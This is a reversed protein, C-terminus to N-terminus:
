IWGYRRVYWRKLSQAALAYSVLLGAVWLAYTAPLEGFQLLGALPGLLLWLGGLASAMTAGALALSPQSDLLPRGPTRIIHVIMLQSLLGVVFWGAHFAAQDALTVLGLWWWLCAFTMLDFVSSLPGFTLMFRGIGPANWRVPRRTLSEDVRDFPIALQSLSYLLNQALLQLPLIPLFPLLASAAVVSIANGLNSSTAMRIYKLMNAFTIRGQVVGEHLVRLDRQLLIVDAAERAVDVGQMFSLGVDSSLLAAADNVGDGMYGVVQGQQRLAMVVRQKQPPTLRAFVTTNACVRQLQADSMRDIRKGTTLGRIPLGLQHGVSEAVWENDGTLIRVDVGSAILDQIAERAGTKVPDIFSVFGVLTMASELDPGLREEQDMARRAVATVRLGQRSWDRTLQHMRRRLSLNWAAHEGDLEFGECLPVVEDVSGKCILWRQGHEDRLDVSVRRRLADFPLEDLKFPVGRSSLLEQAAADQLLTQDIMHLSGSQLRANCSAWYLAEESPNGAADVGARVRMVGSTLTGTKDACLVGMAGLNQVADLRKIVVQRRALARAGRALTATVIMPLLEPTLGVAVAMAFMLASGWDGSRVGNILLVMALLVLAFRIMLWIVQDSGSEFATPTRVRRLVPDSFQGLLTDRGTAVVMAWAKGSVVSTGQYLMHELALLDGGAAGQEVSRKHVPFAEGSMAAQNVQCDKGEFLRCDAPVLDGAALVVVDGPVLERAPVRHEVPPQGPEAPRLVTCLHEVMHQLSQVTKEARREQSWRLGTALLVMFVIISSVATEGKLWSLLGIVSLLLNFPHAYSRWIRRIWSWRELSQMENFGHKERLKSAQGVTLGQQSSGLRVQLRDLDDRAMRQLAHAAPTSALGRGAAGHADWARFQRAWLRAGSRILQDFGFNM